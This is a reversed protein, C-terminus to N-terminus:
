QILAGRGPSSGYSHRSERAARKKGWGLSTGGQRRRVSIWKKAKAIPDLTQRARMDFAGPSVSHLRADATVLNVPDLRRNRAKPAALGQRAIKQNFEAGHAQADHLQGGRKRHTVRCEDDRFVMDMAWHLCNEVAWHDRIMPGIANALLVLSTIYFRTEKTIRGDIERQSEVMVVGQLGPWHHRKQLWEVEHIATYTRGHDADVTEHRSVTADKFSNAKQEAAFVGVDERM